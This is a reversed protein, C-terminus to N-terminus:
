GSAISGDRLGQVIEDMQAVIDGSVLALNFNALSVAQAPTDMGASTDGLGATEGSGATEASNTDDVLDLVVAILSPDVDIVVSTVLCPEAEPAARGQDVISGICLTLGNDNAVEVLAASATTGGFSAVVDVGHSLAERVRQAAWMPDNYAGAPGKPNFSSFLEIEPNIFQAGAEFGTRFDIGAPDSDAGLIVAVKAQTSTLAALSGALFGANRTPFEMITLNTTISNAEGLAVGFSVFNLWPYEAAKQRALAGTPDGAVVIVDFAEQAFDDVKYELQTIDQAELVEVIRVGEAEVERLDDLLQRLEIAGPAVALGVCTIEVRECGRLTPETSGTEPGGPGPGGSTPRALVEPPASANEGAQGGSSCSSAVIVIGLATALYKSALKALLM